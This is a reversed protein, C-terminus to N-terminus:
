SHSLTSPTELKLEELRDVDEDEEAAAIEILRHAERTFDSYAENLTEFYKSQFSPARTIFSQWDM